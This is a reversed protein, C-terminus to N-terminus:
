YMQKKSESSLRLWCSEMLVITPSISCSFVSIRWNLTSTDTIFDNFTYYAPDTYDKGEVGSYVDYSVTGDNSDGIVAKEISGAFYNGDTGLVVPSALDEKATVGSPADTPTPTATVTATPTPTTEAPKKNDKGCAVMSFIMAGSLLLAVSKKMNM